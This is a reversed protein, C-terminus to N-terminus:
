SANDKKIEIDSFKIRVSGLRRQLLFTGADSQDLTEVIQKRARFILINV